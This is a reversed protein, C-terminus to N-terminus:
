EMSSIGITKTRKKWFWSALHESFLINRLLMKNVYIFVYGKSGGVLSSLDEANLYRISVPIRPKLKYITSHTKRDQLFSHGQSQCYSKGLAVALKIVGGAPNGCRHRHTDTYACVECPHVHVYMKFCVCTQHSKETEALKRYNQGM